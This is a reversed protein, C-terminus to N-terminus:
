GERLRRADEGVDLGVGIQADAGRGVTGLWGWCRSQIVSQKKAISAVMARRTRGWRRRMSVKFTARAGPTMWGSMSIGMRRYEGISSETM